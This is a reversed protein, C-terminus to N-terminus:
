NEDKKYSEKAQTFKSAHLVPHWCCVQVYWSGIEWGWNDSNLNIELFCFFLNEDADSPKSISKYATEEWEGGKKQRGKAKSNNNNGGMVIEKEPFGVTLNEWSDLLM